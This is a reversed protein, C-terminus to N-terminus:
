GRQHDKVQEAINLEKANITQELSKHGAFPFILVDSAM